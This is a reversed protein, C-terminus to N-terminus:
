ADPPERRGRRFLEARIDGSPADTLAAIEAVTMGKDFMRIFVKALDQPIRRRQRAEQLVGGAITVEEALGARDDPLYAVVVTGVLGDRVLRLADAPHYVLSTPVIGQQVCYEAALKEQQEATATSGLHICIAATTGKRHM